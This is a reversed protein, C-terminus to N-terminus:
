RVWRVREQLTITDDPTVVFCRQGSRPFSEFPSPLGSPLHASHAILPEGSRERMLAATRREYERRWREMQEDTECLLAGYPEYATQECLKQLVSAYVGACAIRDPEDVGSDQLDIPM